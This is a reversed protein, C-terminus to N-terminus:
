SVQLSLEAQIEAPSWDLPELSPSPLHFTSLGTKYLLYHRTKLLSRPLIGLRVRVSLSVRNAAMVLKATVAIILASVCPGEIKVLIM